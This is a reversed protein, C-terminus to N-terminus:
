NGDVGRRKIEKKMDRLENLIITQRDFIEKRTIKERRFGQKKLMELIEETNALIDDEIPM